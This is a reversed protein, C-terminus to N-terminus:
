TSIWGRWRALTDFYRRPTARAPIWPVVYDCECRLPWFKEKGMGCRLVDRMNSELTGPGKGPGWIKAGQDNEATM